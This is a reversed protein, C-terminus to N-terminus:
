SENEGTPDTKQLLVASADWLFWLIGFVLVWCGVLVFPYFPDRVAEIISYSSAGGRASDYGFQYLRWGNITFPHNVQLLRSEVKDSDPTKIMVSSQFQKPRPAELLLVKEEPLQLFLEEGYVTASHVWGQGVSEDDATFVEVMAAPGTGENSFARPVGEVVAAQPLFELVKLTFGALQEQAGEELFVTGPIVEWDADKKSIGVSMTPAYSELKFDELALAFPLELDGKETTIVRRFDGHEEILIRGRILVPAGAAVAFLILLLGGHVVLFRVRKKSLPYVKAPISLALNIYVLGYSLVYPMSAFVDGLGLAILFEPATDGQGWVAGPFAFFAMACLSTIAMPGGGLGALIQNQSFVRRLVMCVIMVLLPLVWNFPFGPLSLSVGPHLIQVIWSVGLLSVVLTLAQPFEWPGFWFGVTQQRDSSTVPGPAQTV